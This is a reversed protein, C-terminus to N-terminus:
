LSLKVVLLYKVYCKKSVSKDELIMDLPMLDAAKAPSNKYMIDIESLSYSKYKYADFGRLELMELIVGRSKELKNVFNM